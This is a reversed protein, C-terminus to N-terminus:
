FKVKNWTSASKCHHLYKFKRVGKIKIPISIPYIQKSYMVCQVRQHSQHFRDCNCFFNKSAIEDMLIFLRAIANADKVRLKLSSFENEQEHSQM